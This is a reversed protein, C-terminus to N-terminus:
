MKYNEKIKGRPTVVVVRFVLTQNGAQLPSCIQKILRVFDSRLEKELDVLGNIDLGVIAELPSQQLVRLDLLFNILFMVEIM